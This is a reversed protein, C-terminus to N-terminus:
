RRVRRGSRNSARGTSRDQNQTKASKASKASRTQEAPAGYGYGYGYGYTGLGGRPACNLITGLLRGGVSDIRSVAQRLQDRSTSGHRALLLVGDVETALIAADAVPLIPPADIIVVDYEARVTALLDRIAQTELVEAPNPPQPGTGLFNVGSVHEQIAHELTTRGLLVTILGVSNELGLLDAVNPNRMDADVILVSRGSKAMSIALNTAVFTKGEEPVASSIVVMQRKADLNSFQMNTRLVRFAEGLSGGLDDISLPNRKVGPDFPLTVLLSSETIEEVDDGSKVSTDLKDRVLAGVIGILLSLLLGVALELPINPTVPTNSLSAKGAVRAIIPAPVEEDSPTEINKVLRIIEDSEVTAIQQALAPTKARAEVRLLLTNEVVSTEVQDALDAASVQNDLREAVRTLVDSSKALTAYSDARQVATLSATYSDAVGTSPTSILLTATSKYSPPVLVIVLATVLAGLAFTVFVFKWRTRLVGLFQSLDV